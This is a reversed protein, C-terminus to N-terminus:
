EWASDPIPRAEVIEVLLRDPALVFFSKSQLDDRWEMPEVMEVGAEKMAAFVPGIERYSFALHDIASGRTPALAGVRAEPPWWAPPNEPDALGYVILSVNDVRIANSWRLAGRRLTPEVPSPRRPELGLHRAFWDTTANVDTVVLHVHNFRHNREGTYVEVVEDDLGQLYMYHNSGLATIETHFRAGEQKRWEYETPGHVGGWGLHWITTALHNPPKADVENFFLFSRETFLADTKGAYRIPLAGFFKRYYEMSAERDTVNLHVHHFHAAEAKEQGWAAWSTALVGVWVWVMFGARLHVTGRGRLETM